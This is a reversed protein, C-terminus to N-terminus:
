RKKWQKELEKNWKSQMDKVATSSNVYASLAPEFYDHSPITVSRMRRLTGDEGTFYLFDGKKPFITGGVINVYAKPRAGMYVVGHGDKYVKHKVAKVTEGSRSTMVTKFGRRVYKKSKVCVTRVLAKIMRPTARKLGQFDDIVGDMNFESIEVM